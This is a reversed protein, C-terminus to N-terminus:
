TVNIEGQEVTKPLHESLWENALIAKANSTGIRKVGLDLLEKAQLYSKIGGSAKIPLSSFGQIFKVDNVLNRRRPYVGTNTKIFDVEHDKAFTIASSFVEDDKILETEIILKLTKGKTAERVKRITESANLIDDQFFSMPMVVDYEDGNATKAQDIEYDEYVGFPFGIVYVKKIESPNKKLIDEVLYSNGMYTCFGYCKLDIAERVARKIEKSTLTKNLVTYDLFQEIM